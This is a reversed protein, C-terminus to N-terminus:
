TGVQPATFLWGDQGNQESVTQCDINDYSLKLKKKFEYSFLYDLPSAIRPTLLNDFYGISDYADLGVNVPCKWIGRILNPDFADKEFELAKSKDIFARYSNKSNAVYVYSQNIITDKTENDNINFNNKEDSYDYRWLVISSKLYEEDYCKIVDTVYEGIYNDALEQAFSKALELDNFIGHFLFFDNRKKVVIAYCYQRSDQSM